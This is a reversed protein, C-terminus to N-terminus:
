HRAECRWYSWFVRLHVVLKPCHGLSLQRNGSGSPGPRGACGSNSRSVDRSGDVRWRRVSSVDGVTFAFAGARIPTFSFRATGSADSEIARFALAQLHVEIGHIIVLRRYANRPLDDVALRWPEAGDSTRLAQTASRMPRLIRRAISSTEFVPNLVLTAGDACGPGPLGCASRHSACQGDGESCSEGHVSGIIARRAVQTNDISSCVRQALTRAIM